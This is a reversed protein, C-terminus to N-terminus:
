TELSLLGAASATPYGLDVGLAPHEIEGTGGTWITIPIHEKWIAIVGTEETRWVTFAGSPKAQSPGIGHQGVQTSLLPDTGGAIQEIQREFVAPPTQYPRQQKGAQRSAYQVSPWTHQVFKSHFLRDPQCAGVEVTPRRGNM